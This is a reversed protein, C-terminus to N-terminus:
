LDLLWTSAGNGRRVGEVAADFTPSDKKKRGKFWSVRSTNFGIRELVQVAQNSM